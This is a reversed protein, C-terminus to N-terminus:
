MQKMVMGSPLKPYFYTSKQPMVEKDDAIAMVSKLPTRKLIIAADYHGEIVESIAYTADRTYRIHSGSAQEHETIGLMNELVLTHLVKVDLNALAESEVNLLARKDLGNKLAVFVFGSEKSYIIFAHRDYATKMMADAADYSDVKTVDFYQGLKEDVLSTIAEAGINFLMRHTPLLSIRSDIAGTIYTMIYNYSANKDKGGDQSARYKKYDLATEYRHHGDAIYLKQQNLVDTFAGCKEVPMLWLTNVVDEIDTFSFIPEHTETYLSLFDDINKQDDEYIVYIPSLNMDTAKMLKLRDKKPKNLTKEHPLVIGDSWEHLEVNAIIGFTSKPQGFIKYEQKLVYFCNEEDEVLIGESKWSDLCQRARTYKNDSDDDGDKVHGLILNIVNYPSKGYLIEQQESNIIDYPPASVDDLSVKDLNYRLSKFPNILAM